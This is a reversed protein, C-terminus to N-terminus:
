VFAELTNDHIYTYPVVSSSIRAEAMKRYTDMATWEVEGYTSCSACNVVGWLGSDSSKAAESVAEASQKWDEDSTADLQLVTMRSEPDPLSALEKAGDGCGSEKLLCGAFVNFGLSHAHKALELGFGSDCGICSILLRLSSPAIKCDTGTIFVTKAKVPLRAASKAMALVVGVTM